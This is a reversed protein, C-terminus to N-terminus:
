CNVVNKGTVGQKQKKRIRDLALNQLPCLRIGKNIIGDNM